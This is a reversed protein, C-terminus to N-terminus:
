EVTFFRICIQDGEDRALGVFVHRTLWEHAPADTRFVPQTRFYVDAPDIEEGREIQEKVAESGTFFGRNVIDILAGDEARILYRADLEFTHGRRTSWDGGGPVVEGKLRPGDVTGGVIPTFDLVEDAGRGIHLSPTCTVRAEFAYTLTPAEPLVPPEPTM